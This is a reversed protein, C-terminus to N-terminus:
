QLATCREKFPIISRWSAPAYRFAPMGSRCGMNQFPKQFSVKSFRRLSTSVRKMGYPANDSSCLSSNLGMRFARFPIQSRKSAAWLRLAKWSLPQLDPIGATRYRGAEQGGKRNDKEEKFFLLQCTIYCNNYYLYFLYLLLQSVFMRCTNFRAFLIM